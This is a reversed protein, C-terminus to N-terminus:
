TFVHGRARTLVVWLPNGLPFTPSFHDPAVNAFEAEFAAHGLFDQGQVRTHCAVHQDIDLEASATQKVLSKEVERLGELHRDRIQKGRGFRCRRAFSAGLARDLSAANPNFSARTCARPGAFCPLDVGVRAIGGITSSTLGDRRKSTGTLKLDLVCDLRIVARQQGVLAVSPIQPGLRSASRSLRCHTVIRSRLPRM